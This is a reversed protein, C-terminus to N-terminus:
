SEEVIVRGFMAHHNLGCYEHCIMLYEGPEEFTYSNRAVQGPILMMNLRTGEVNLGHIVDGSTAVFTVEAGAPVRIEAPTFSWMRAIIVAEYREPGTQRVGPNDFPATTALAQPDVLGHDGPLHIGMALTSWTLAAACAVLVIAGATLFAKEYTHVRM